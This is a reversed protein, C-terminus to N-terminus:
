AEKAPADGQAEAEPAPKTAAEELQEVQAKLAANEDNAAALSEKLADREALAAALADAQEKAAAAHADIQGQLDAVHEETETSLQANKAHQELAGDAVDDAAAQPLGFEGVGVKAFLARVRDLTEGAFSRVMPGDHMIGIYGDRTPVVHTQPGSAEVVDGQDTESDSM